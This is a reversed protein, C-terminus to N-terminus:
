TTNVGEMYLVMGHSQESIKKLVCSTSLVRMTSVYCPVDRALLVKYKHSVFQVTFQKSIAARYLSIGHVRERRGASAQQSIQFGVCLNCSPGTGSDTHLPLLCKACDVALAASYSSVCSCTVGKIQM